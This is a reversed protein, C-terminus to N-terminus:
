LKVRFALADDRRAFRGGALQKPTADFDSVGVGGEKIHRIAKAAADGTDVLNQPALAQEFADPAEVRIFRESKALAFLDVADAARIRMERIVGKDGCVAVLPEAVSWGNEGDDGIM